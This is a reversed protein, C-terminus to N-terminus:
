IDPILLLVAGYYAVWRAGLQGFHRLTEAPSPRTAAEVDKGPNQTSLVPLGFQIVNWLLKQVRHGERNVDGMGGDRCNSFHAEM